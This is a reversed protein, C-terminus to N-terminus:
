ACTASPSRRPSGTGGVILMIPHALTAVALALLVGIALSLWLAQAALEGARASRGAGHLRAM